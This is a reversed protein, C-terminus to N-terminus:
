TAGRMLLTSQFKGASLTVGDYSGTAGRMLLTSQFLTDQMKTYAEHTAGRMLLTSQFIAPCLAAKKECDSRAHPAHISIPYHPSSCQRSHRTAGRMLLTSQFITMGTSTTLQKHDSRAHPAHISIRRAQHVHHAHRLREECSSRPNFDARRRFLRLHCTAGRMLLTSQFKACARHTLVSRSTAGRMLLTSQFKNKSTFTPPQYIRREECSSRPNFHPASTQTCPAPHREECSSRPNFDHIPHRCAVRWTAGRM